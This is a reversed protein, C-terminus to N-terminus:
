HTATAQLTAIVQRAAAKGIHAECFGAYITLLELWFGAANDTNVVGQIILKASEDGIQEPTM